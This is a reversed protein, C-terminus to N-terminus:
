TDSEAEDTAAAEGAGLRDSLSRNAERRGEPPEGARRRHGIHAELESLSILDRAAMEQFKLRQRAVDELV